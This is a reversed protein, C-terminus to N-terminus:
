QQVILTLKVAQTLTGSTATVSLTYTQPHPTQATSGGCASVGFGITIGACIFLLLSLWRQSANRSRRGFPLLLLGLALPWAGRGFPHETTQVAASSPVSVVLAVNTTGAGAAITSPSFTATAGPPLGTVSFTLTDGAAPPTVALAYTAQGGPSVTATSSSSSSPAISFTEVFQALAPSTVSAFREDGSYAAAISHSGVALASTTYNASGGILAASGLQATGDMFTVTGSPSGLSSSLNVTFTVPNGTMVPNLSSQIASLGPTANNVTLTVTSTATLYDAVDTPTFTTSLTQQGPSLVTGAAPSYVFSGAVTATANLQASGLPTGYTIPAPTPWAIIPAVPQKIVYNASAVGSVTYGPAVAIAKLTESASIAIPTDYLTSFTTPTSGDISYYIAAAETPDTIEVTQTGTYTGAGLTFAPTATIGPKGVKRVRYNCSDAIYLGGATDFALGAPACLEAMSPPGGDGAFGSFGIGVVRTINGGGAPVMRIGGNSNSIYLNDKSDVTLGYPYVEAAIAPGGDGTAGFNGNGVFTTIIGTQPDIARVRGGHVEGIYLTGKSDFVIPGPDTLMASTAPGGDGLGNSGGGAVTTIIGTAAAVERIRGNSQDAIYLNGAQDFALGSPYVYAQTAPGGDGLSPPQGGGAFVAMMGTTADVKLVQRYDQDSIYLNGAKDIAVQQPSMLATSTALGVPPSSPSVYGRVGPIGAAVSIKGTAASVMWIVFDNQDAIYLNRASDFAIGTPYGIGARTAPGGIGSAASTGNGAITNIVIKPPTSITYAASVTDSPLYGPAVAMAQITSSSAISVPGHYGQGLPSEAGGNVSVVITAGPTPDTITLTQPDVYTGAALDFAPQATTTSPVAMPLTIKRIRGYGEEAIYLNGQSDVTVGPALCLGSQVAPGGDGSLTTCVGARGSITNIIGDAATVERLVYSYADTIDLNGAADVAVGRPDQLVASTAAGGDGSYQWAPYGGGQGAVTTIIGTAATVKRIAANWLDAIYLNGSNDIALGEVQTLSAETAPGGDGSFGWSGSGVATSITGTSANLMRVRGLDGIYLNGARDLAIGQPYSLMATTGPGGDGSYGSIGTGAVTSITGTVADVRRVVSNGSDCIYLNGISDLALAYPWHLQARAAPGGDGSYGAIGTGAITSIIGSAADVKRIVQNGFDAIYLNGAADVATNTPDNLSALTAPGGDGDLGWFGSGAVTYIFRTQSSQIFFQAKAAPGASYGGAAAIAAVTGSTPVSIPGTYVASNTTPMTGDTTYYITAAAVSDTITVSQPGAFVGGSPSIVPAPAPPLNLTFTVTTYSSQDYGDETAYATITEQGGINLSIPGTYKVFGYINLVGDAHYYITSGPISETMTVTQVSSYTGGGPSIKVPALGASLEVPASVAAPYNSDGAYSAEVNHTGIGVPAVGTLTATATETSKTLLISATSVNKSLMALDPVGDENFDAAVTAIPGLWDNSGAPTANTVTFTGDGAGLLLVIWNHSNDVGALDLNGDRDFDGVKLSYLESPVVIPSASTENFTGDGNGLAIEVGNLDSFALDPVGDGNFDGVVVSTPFYDLPFSTVNATFTGDGKGLFVTPSAGFKFYNTAVLDPIGDRNFDGTAVLGFDQTLAFTQGASFTGDGNGLLITIGGPSVYEGVVAVDLKGDGNFDAAIMSGPVGDGVVGQTFAVSTQPAAFAGDGNSPVITVYSTKNLTNWTLIALDTRGDDNFDGSIMYPDIQSGIGSSFSTGATFTGDGKGSLITMSYPGGHASNTWLVALDPIGDQNFDGAAECAPSTGTSPTQSMLWGVGATSSGLTATGLLNNGFSTDLFSVTGGPAASGGYGTVNATLSYDGPFGRASITSTDSYVLPPAPGVTLSAPASSSSLGYGNELFAAKYSHPGPGPVFRFVATGSSSVAVTGLLHIDSCYTVSADCFNVQGATVSSGGATVTATLTVATGPAVSSVATTGSTITLATATVPPAGWLPIAKSASLNYNGDGGYSAQLQHLGAPLSIDASATATQTPETLYLGLTNNYYGAAVIDPYGDGNLDGVGVMLYYPVSLHSLVPRGQNFSSSGNNLFVTASGTSDALVVDPAGDQNFDAVQIWTVITGNPGQGSASSNFTGDGNGTLITVSESTGYAGGAAVALDSNGDGNFDAAIVQANQTGSHATGTETFTGDGNGLLTTIGDSYADAVALDPKGDGNFDGAAVCSPRVSISPSAGITFTGDGNSLLIGLTSDYNDVVILDAIGDDNLDATLLQSVDTLAGPLSADVSAAFTGDGKGLLISVIPSGYKAVALDPTGDGNFDAIAVPDQTAGAISPAPAESYTGDAKGLYIGLPSENVVLDPIGDGNLDSVLVFRTGVVSDISKPNPWGVGAAATDLAGTAVASDGNNADLFSVTGTPPTTGGAETVTTTLTYNGWLGSAAVTTATAIPGVTGNVTLTSAGSASEAYTNTGPYVAKYSHTGIGPRFSFTATGTATLQATGLLHVDTCTKASADCFNVQGPTATVGGAHVQATLTVVTGAGISSVTNGASTIALTANTAVKSQAATTQGPASFWAGLVVCILAVRSKRSENCLASAFSPFLISGLVLCFLLM